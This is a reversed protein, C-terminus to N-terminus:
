SPPSLLSISHWLYRHTFRNWPPIRLLCAPITHSSNSQSTSWRQQHQPSSRLLSWGNTDGTCLLHTRPPESTNTPSTLFVIGFITQVAALTIFFGTVIRDRRTLAYISDLVWDKLDVLGEQLPRNPGVSCDPISARHVNCLCLLRASPNFNQQVQLIINPETFVLVRVYKCRHHVSILPPSYLCLHQIIM